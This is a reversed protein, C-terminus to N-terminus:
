KGPIVINYKGINLYCHRKPEFNEIEGFVQIYKGEPVDKVNIVYFNIYTRSRACKSRGSEYHSARHNNWYKEFVDAPYKKGISEMIEEDTIGELSSTYDCGKMDKRYLLGSWENNIKILGEVESSFSYMVIDGSM